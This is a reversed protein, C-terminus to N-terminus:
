RGTAGPSPASGSAGNGEPYTDGPLPIYGPVPPRARFRSFGFVFFALGLAMVATAAVLKLTAPLTLGPRWDELLPQQLSAHQVSCTYVDGAEPATTLAVQVQYTWNGDPTATVPDGPGGLADGNRLWTVTVEAPYFGWVHCVLRVPARANGTRVPIIRAQPPARRLATQEWLPLAVGRCAQRREEARQLWATGNNLFAALAAAHRRLLGVDCAVFLRADADYCVLPNKNFAVTLDFDLVAGDATLSCSSALHVLFAGAGRVGLVLGLLVLM